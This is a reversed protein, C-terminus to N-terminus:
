DNDDGEVDQLYGVKEAIDVFAMGFFIPWLIGVLVAEFTKDDNCRYTYAYAGIGFGLGIMAYMIWFVLM